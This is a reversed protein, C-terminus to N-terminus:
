ICGKPIPIDPFFLSSLVFTDEIIKPPTWKPYLKKILPIDHLFANHFVVSGETSIFEVWEDVSIITHLPYEDYVEEYWENPVGIIFNDTEVDYAVGCHIVTSDYALSDSETDCILLM